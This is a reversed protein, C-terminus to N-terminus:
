NTLLQNQAALHKPQACLGKTAQPLRGAYIDPNSCDDSSGAVGSSGLETSSSECDEADVKPRNEISSTPM